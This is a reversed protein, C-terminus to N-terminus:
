LKFTFGLASSFKRYANDRLEYTVDLRLGFGSCVTWALGTFGATVNAFSTGAPTSLAESGYSGGLWTSLSDAFAWGFRVIGAAAPDNQSSLAAIAQVQLSGRGSEFRVGPQLLTVENGTYSLHKLGLLGTFGGTFRLEAGAGAEWAALFHNSPTLAGRVSLLLDPTVRLDAVANVRHDQYGFWRLEEFGAGVTLDETARYGAQAFWGGEVGRGAPPSNVTVKSFGDLEGGLDLRFRPPAETHTLKLKLEEDTPALALARQYYGSADARQGQALAVDGALRLADADQPAQALVADLETRALAHEGKWYRIRARGIQWGRANPSQPASFLLASWSTISDDYRGLWGEVTALQERAELDGPAQRVVAAFVAAAEALKQQQKLALGEQLTAAGAAPSLTQLLGCCLAVVLHVRQKTDAPM